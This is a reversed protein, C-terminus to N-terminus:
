SRLYSAGNADIIGGTLYDTDEFALFAAVQAIEEPRGVRGTPSQARVSEGGDGDIYPAAMDTEVWGPAITFVSIGHPALAVAMSQGMANMGAKSAGYAPANPEGRFAGRSSINIIKGGTGAAMHRAVLFSLHAPATLNVELTHRWAAEWAEEDHELPPHPYFVGANNVLVDIKGLASLSRAFLEKVDSAVGLDAQVIAHGDGPLEDLLAEAAPRARAFHIALRAGRRAFTQAIARGIGRSAGTILAHIREKQM